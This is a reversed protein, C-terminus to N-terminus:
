VIEYGKKIYYGEQIASLTTVVCILVASYVISVLQLTLPLVFLLIRSVKNLVTHEVMVKKTRIFGFLINVVKVVFIVCIWILLWTPIIIESLKKILVVLTFIFDAVTDLIAGFKGASNTKRAILEDLIDLVGCLLNLIFFPISNYFIVVYTSYM